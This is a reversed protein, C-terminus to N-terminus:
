MAGLMSPVAQPIPGAEAHERAINQFESQSRIVPEGPKPKLRRYTGDSQLERAKLNDSLVVALIRDIIRARLPPDEIPFMLEVRRHFNRPMWDASSLFVEPQGDNLFYTIRSHELYKDLISVVRINESVDPVGPRLCCIGRILLDIKVGAISAEYLSEIIKPDVLSNMKAIIRATRGARAHAAEREILATLKSALHMPAVVLKNM